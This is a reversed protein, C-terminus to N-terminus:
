IGCIMILPGRSRPSSSEEPHTPLLCAPGPDGFSSPPLTHVHTPAATGTVSCAHTHAVADTLRHPVRTAPRASRRSTQTDTHMCIHTVTPTHTHTHTHTHTFLWPHCFYTHTRLQTHVRTYAQPQLHSRVYAHTLIQTHACTHMHSHTRTDPRKPHLTLRQTPSRTHVHTVICMLTNPIVHSQVTRQHTRAHRHAHARLHWPSRSALCLGPDPPLHDGADVWCAAQTEGAASAQLVVSSPASGRRQGEPYSQWMRLGPSTASPMGLRPCHTLCRRCAPSHPRGLGARPAQGVRGTVGRPSPTLVTGSFVM